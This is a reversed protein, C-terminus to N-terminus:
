HNLHPLLLPQLFTQFMPERHSTPHRLLRFQFNLAQIARHALIATRLHRQHLALIAQAASHLHILLDSNHHSNNDQGGSGLAVM